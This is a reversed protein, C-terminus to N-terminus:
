ALGDLDGLRVRVPPGDVFTSLGDLDFAPVFLWLARWLALDVGLAPAVGFRRALVRAATADREGFVGTVDLAGPGLHRRARVQWISIGLGGATEVDSMGVALLGGPRGPWGPRGTM